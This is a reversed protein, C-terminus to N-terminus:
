NFPYRESDLTKLPCEKDRSNCVDECVYFQDRPPQRRKFPESVGNDILVNKWTEYAADLLSISHRWEFGSKDNIKFGNITDYDALLDNMPSINKYGGLIENLDNLGDITGGSELLM